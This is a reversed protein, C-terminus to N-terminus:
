FDKRLFLKQKYWPLVLVSITWFVTVPAVPKIETYKKLLEVSLFWYHNKIKSNSHKLPTKTPSVQGHGDAGMSNALSLYEELHNHSYEILSKKRSNFWNNLAVHESTRAFRDASQAHHINFSFFVKQNM